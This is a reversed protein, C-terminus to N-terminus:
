YFTCGPFLSTSTYKFFISLGTYTLFFHEKETFVEHIMIKCFYSANILPFLSFKNKLNSSCGNLQATTVKYTKISQSTSIKIYMIM